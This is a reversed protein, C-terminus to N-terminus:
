NPCKLDDTVYYVRGNSPTPRYLVCGNQYVCIRSPLKVLGGLIPEYYLWNTLEDQWQCSEGISTEDGKDKACAGLVLTLAVLILRM